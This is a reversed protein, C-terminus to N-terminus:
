FKFRGDPSCNSCYKVPIPAWGAKIGPIFSQVFKEDLCTMSSCTDCLVTVSEKMIKKCEDCPEDATIVWYEGNKYREASLHENTEINKRCIPCIVVRELKSIRVIEEESVPKPCKTFHLSVDFRNKVYNTYHSNKQHSHWHLHITGKDKGNWAEIPYHILVIKGVESNNLEKYNGMFKFLDKLGKQMKITDHNWVLWFLNKCKIKKLLEVTDDVKWFSIDWLIYLEDKKKVTSNIRNIIETNMDSVNSFPRDDYKIINKHFLHLDSIFYRM